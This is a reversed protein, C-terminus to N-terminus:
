IWKAVIISAPVRVHRLADVCLRNYKMDDGLVRGTDDAHPLLELIIM